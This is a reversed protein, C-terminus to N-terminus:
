KKKCVFIFAAVDIEPDEIEQVRENGINALWRKINPVM